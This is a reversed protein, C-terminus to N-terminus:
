DESAGYGVYEAMVEPNVLAALNTIKEGHIAQTVAMEVKKGSRTYPIDSVEVIDYPVHRPTLNSRITDRIKAVLDPTLRQKAKLKVFLIIRVDGDQKKGVAISDTIEALTEVQRYLEATGIRVGGPNLTADSRGYVIVGGTKTIEIFDGHRWVEGQRAFHGFYAKSYKRGEHDNWFGIPM